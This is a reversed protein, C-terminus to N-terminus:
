RQDLPSAPGAKSRPMIRALANVVVQGLHRPPERPDAALLILEDAHCIETILEVPIQWTRGRRGGGAVILVDPRDHRRGFRVAEVMGVSDSGAVVRFGECRRLWYSQGTAESERDLEVLKGPRPVARRPESHEPAVRAVLEELKRVDACLAAVQARLVGLERETAQRREREHELKRELVTIVDVRGAVPM